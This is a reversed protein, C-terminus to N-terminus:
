NLHTSFTGWLGFYALAGKENFIRENKEELANKNTKTTAKTDCCYLRHYVISMSEFYVLTAPFSFFKM